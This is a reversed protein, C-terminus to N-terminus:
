FKFSFVNKSVTSLACFHLAIDIYKLIYFLIQRKCFEIIKKKFTLLKIFLYFYSHNILNIFSNSNSNMNTM